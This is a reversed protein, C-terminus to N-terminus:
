QRDWPNLTTVGTDHVDRVNRTVLTMGHVLATAALLGDVLPLSRKADLRGWREAIEENIGLIRDGYSDRLGQVWRQLAESRDKDRHALRVAGRTLEGLTLVSLYQADAAIGQSWAMVNAHPRPRGLESAVNTDILFTLTSRAHRIKPGRM